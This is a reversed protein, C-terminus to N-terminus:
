IALGTSANVIVDTEIIMELVPIIMEGVLADQVNNDYVYVRSGTEFRFLGKEDLDEEEASLTVDIDKNEWENWKSISLSFSGFAEANDDKAISISFVGATGSASSGEVPLSNTYLRARKVKLKRNPPIAVQVSSASSKNSVFASQTVSSNFQSSTNGGSGTLEYSADIMPIRVIYEKM